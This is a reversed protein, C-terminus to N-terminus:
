KGRKKGGSLLLFAGLAGAGYLLYKKNQEAQLAQAQQQAIIQNATADAVQEPDYGYKRTTKTGPTNGGGAVWGVVKKLPKTIFSFMGDLGQDPPLYVPPQIM